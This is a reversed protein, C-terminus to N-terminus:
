ADPAGSKTRMRRDYIPAVVRKVMAKVHYRFAEPAIRRDQAWASVTAASTDARACVRGLIWMSGHRRPRSSPRSTFLHLFGADQAARYVANSVDGGPVSALTCSTALVDELAARSRSWEALMEDHTQRRFVDPHSHSHSGILHGMGHLERLDEPKLFGRDGIRATTMFFHGRWGRRALEDGITLASSGGDDFTLLVRHGSASWDVESVTTVDAGGEELRDLHRTFRDPKLKYDYAGPRDFGSARPDAVVDHYLLSTV